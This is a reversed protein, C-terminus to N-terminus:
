YFDDDDDDDESPVFIENEELYSAGKQAILGGIYLSGFTTFLLQFVIM